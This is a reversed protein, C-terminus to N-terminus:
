DGERSWVSASPRARVQELWRLLHVLEESVTIRGVRMFDIIVHATIDAVTYREVAIFPNDALREDLYRLAREVRPRNAEGWAPVQDELVRLSPHTHRVVAAVNQLLGFEVRRQWMEIIASELPDRGMLNPEPHLAEIYRYIAVTETLVTGDELEVAPVTAAGAWAIYEPKRHEGGMIDISEAPIELGKEALFIRLQRPSPAAPTEVLRVPRPLM